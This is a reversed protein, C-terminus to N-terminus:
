TKPGAMGFNPLILSGLQISNTCQATGEALRSRHLNGPLDAGALGVNHCTNCSILFSASLRPDFFLKKGLDLKGPNLRANGRTITKPKLPIPSFVAQARKMTDNQAWASVATFCILMSLAITARKMEGGKM